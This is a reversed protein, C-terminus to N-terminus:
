LEKLVETLYRWFKQTSSIQLAEEPSHAGTVNPGFSVIELHPYTESLIGCELGAHIADIKPLQGFLSQYIKKMSTVTKTNPAPNWGPFPDVETVNAQMASFSNRIVNVVDRRESEIFSRAFCAIQFHGKDMLIKGINNSSQVLHNLAPTMRYIGYPCTYLGALLKQQVGKPLVPVTKKIVKLTIALAPDSEKNETKLLSTWHTMQKQFSAIATKKVAIMAMCERPIASTRDGGLISSIRIKCEKNIEYLLRSILKIANSGGRHIDVGSHGGTLGKVSLQYFTYDGKL